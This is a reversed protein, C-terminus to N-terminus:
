SQALSTEPGRHVSVPFPDAVGIATSDTVCREARAAGQFRMQAQALSTATVLCPLRALLAAAVDAAVLYGKGCCCELATPLGQDALWRRLHHVYTRVSHPSVGMAVALQETSRMAGPELLLLALMRVTKARKFGLSQPLTQAARLSEAFSM